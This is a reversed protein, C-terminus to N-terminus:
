KKKNKWKKQYKTISTDKEMGSMVRIKWSYDGVWLQLLSDMQRNEKKLVRVAMSDHAEYDCEHFMVYSMQGSLFCGIVLFFIKM